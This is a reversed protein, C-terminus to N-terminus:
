RALPFSSLWVPEVSQLLDRAALLAKEPAGHALWGARSAESEPPLRLLARTRVAPTAADFALALLAGGCAACLEAARTTEWNSASALAEIKRGLPTRVLALAETSLQTRLLAVEERSIVGRIHRANAAAGLLLQFTEFKPSPLIAIPLAPDALGLTPDIGLQEFMAASEHKHRLPLSQADPWAGQQERAPHLLMSPLLQFRLIAEALPHALWGSSGHPAGVAM